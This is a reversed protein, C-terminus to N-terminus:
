ATSQRILNGKGAAGAPAGAELGRQATAPRRGAPGQTGAGAGARSREAGARPLSIRGSGERGM